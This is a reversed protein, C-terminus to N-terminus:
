FRNRVFIESADGSGPIRKVALAVRNTADLADWYTDLTAQARNDLPLLLPDGTFAPLPSGDGMYTTLAFGLGPPPPAPRYTYRDTHEPDIPNAKLLSLSLSARQSGACRLDLM